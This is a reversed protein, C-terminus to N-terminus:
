LGLGVVEYVGHNRGRTWHFALADEGEEEGMYGQVLLAAADVRGEEGEVLVVVRVVEGVADLLLVVEGVGGGLAQELADEAFGCITISCALALPPISNDESAVVVFATIHPVVDVLGRRVGFGRPFGRGPGRCM